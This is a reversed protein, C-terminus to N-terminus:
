QLQSLALTQERVVQGTVDRVSLHIRTADGAWDIKILGYNAKSYPEGVRHKNPSVWRWEETLGSSTVETLPYTDERELRSFESWHTDGSIVVAGTTEKDRLLKLYPTIDM